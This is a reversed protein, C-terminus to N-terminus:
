LAPTVQAYLFVLVGAGSHSSFQGPVRVGVGWRAVRVMWEYVGLGVDFLAGPAIANHLSCDIGSGSAGAPDTTCRPDRTRTGEKTATWVVGGGLSGWSFAGSERWRWILRVGAETFHDPQAESSGIGLTPYMIAVAVWPEVSLPMRAGGQGLGFIVGLSFDICGAGAGSTRNTMWGGGVQGDVAFRQPDRKAEPTLDIVQVDEEDGGEGASASTSASPHPAVASAPPAASAASAAGPVASAAPPPAAAAIGVAAFSAPAAFWRLLRRAVEPLKPAAPPLPLMAHPTM